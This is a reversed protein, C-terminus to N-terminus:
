SQVDSDQRDIRLFLLRDDEGVADFIRARATEYDAAEEVITRPASEPNSRSSIRAILKM